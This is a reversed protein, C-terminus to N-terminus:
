EPYANVIMKHVRLYRPVLNSRHDPRSPGRIPAAGM